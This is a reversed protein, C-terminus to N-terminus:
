EKCHIQHQGGVKGFVKTFVWYNIAWNLALKQGFKLNQVKLM